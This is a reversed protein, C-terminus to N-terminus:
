RADLAQELAEYPLTCLVRDYWGGDVRTIRRERSILVVETDMLEMRLHEGQPVGYVLICGTGDSALHGAGVYEAM